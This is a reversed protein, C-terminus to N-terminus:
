VKLRSFSFVISGSVNGYNTSGRKVSDPIEEGWRKTLEPKYDFLEIQSPGGSQFLYIVRKAKPLHHLQKLIGGNGSTYVPPTPASNALGPFLLSGIAMAGLGKTTTKLFDRRTKIYQAKQLDSNNM